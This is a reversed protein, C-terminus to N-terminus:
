KDAFHKGFLAIRHPRPLSKVAQEFSDWRKTFSGAPIDCIQYERACNPGGRKTMTIIKLKVLLKLYVSYRSGSCGPFKQFLNRAIRARDDRGFCGLLSAIFRAIKYKRSPRWGSQREVLKVIWKFQSKTVEHPGTRSQICEPHAKIFAFQKTILSNTKDTLERLYSEVHNYSHEMIWESMLKRTDVESKRLPITLLYVMEKLAFNTLGKELKSRAVRIMRANNTNAPDLRGKRIATEIEREIRGDSDIAAPLKNEPASHKTDSKMLAGDCKLLLRRLTKLTYAKFPFQLLIKLGKGSDFTFPLLRENLVASEAGLPLRLQRNGSPFVEL